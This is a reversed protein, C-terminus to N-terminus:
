TYEKFNRKLRSLCGTNPFVTSLSLSVSMNYCISQNFQWISPTSSHHDASSVFCFWFRVNSSISATSFLQCLRFFCFCVSNYQIQM